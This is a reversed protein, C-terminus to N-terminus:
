IDELSIDFTSQRIDFTSNLFEISKLNDIISRLSRWLEVNLM